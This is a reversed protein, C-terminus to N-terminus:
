QCLWFGNPLFFIGQPIIQSAPRHVHRHYITKIILNPATPFVWAVTALVKSTPGQVILAFFHFLLLTLLHAHVSKERSTVISIIHSASTEREVEGCYRVTAQFQLSYFGGKRRLQKRDLYKIVAVSVHQM